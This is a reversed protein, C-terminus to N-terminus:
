ARELQDTRVAVERQGGLLRLLIKTREPGSLKVLGVLDVHGALPGSTVHVLEGQRFIRGEKVMLQPTGYLEMLQEVEREGMSVRAM